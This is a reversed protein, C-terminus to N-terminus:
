AEYTMVGAHRSYCVVFALCFGIFSDPQNANRTKQLPVRTLGVREFVVWAYVCSRTIVFCELMVLCELMVFCELIVFCELMVFCKLRLLANLLPLANLLVRSSSIM